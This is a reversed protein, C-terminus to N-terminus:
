KIVLFINICDVKIRWKNSLPRVRGRRRSRSLRRWWWLRVTRFTVAWLGGNKRPVPVPSLAVRARASVEVELRHRIWFQRSFPFFSKSFCGCLSLVVGHLGGNGCRLGVLCLHGPEVKGSNPMMRWWVRLVEEAIREGLVRCGKGTKRELSRLHLTELTFTTLLLHADCHRYCRRRQSYRWRHPRGQTMAVWITRRAESSMLYSSSICNKFLLKNDVVKMNFEIPEDSCFCNGM